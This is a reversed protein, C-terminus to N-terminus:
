FRQNGARQARIMFEQAECDAQQAQYSEIAAQVPKAVADEQNRTKRENEIIYNLFPAKVAMM